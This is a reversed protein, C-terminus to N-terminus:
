YGIIELMWTIRLIEIGKFDKLALLHKDGTVIFDAKGEYATNLVIDDDPDESIVNFCSRVTILESKRVLGSLFRNVQSSKVERFKERSLVDALEALMQRSLLVSHEELLRLVLRRSKGRSLLASVLVNTDVVVRVMKHAKSPENKV